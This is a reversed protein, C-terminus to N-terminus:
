IIIGDLPNCRNVDIALAIANDSRRLQFTLRENEGVVEGNASGNAAGESEHESRNNMQEHLTCRTFCHRSLFGHREVLVSPICSSPFLGSVNSVSRSCAQELSAVQKEEKGSSRESMVSEFHVNSHPGQYM